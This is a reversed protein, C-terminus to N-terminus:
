TVKHIMWVNPEEYQGIDSECDINVPCLAGPVIYHGSEPFRMKTWAEWDAVSGKILMSRPSIRAQTAGARWHVRLWPDFPSGDPQKWDAYREIPTLPYLAKLTPRVSAIVSHCGNQRAVACMAALIVSSYGKGQNEPKVVIAYANLADPKLGLDYSKIGQEVAADWGEPLTDLTGDWVLPVANGAALSLGNDDCLVVQYQAFANFLFDWAKNAVPDEQMFRPWVANHIDSVQQELEPKEALTFIQHNM